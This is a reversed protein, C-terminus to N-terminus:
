GVKKSLKVRGGVRWLGACGPSGVRKHEGGPYSDAFVAEERGTSTKVTVGNLLLWSSPRRRQRNAFAYEGAECADSCM